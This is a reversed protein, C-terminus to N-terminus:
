LGSNGGNRTDGLIISRYPEFMAFRWVGGPRDWGYLSPAGPVAVRMAKLSRGLSAFRSRATTVPEGLKDALEVMTFSELEATARIFGQASPGTRALLDAIAPAALHEWSGPQPPAEDGTDAPVPDPALVNIRDLLGQAQAVEQPNDPDLSLTMTVMVEEKHATSSCIFRM